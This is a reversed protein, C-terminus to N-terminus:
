QVRVFGNATIKLIAAESNAGNGQDFSITGSLGRYGKVKLLADIIKEKSDSGGAAKIANIILNAADYGLACIRDPDSNYRQRYKIKFDQWEASNLDTEVNASIVAGQVYSGGDQIVKKSQWGNSGLIQTKIRNFNVQPALMVIDDAEAPIFLGSVALTTDTYRISDAKSIRGKFETGKEIAQKELYRKLLKTRLEAFQATYDNAGEEFYIESVLEANQKKLEEKFSNALIMGYETKPALIAFEKMNLNQIAYSAVKRGLTGISVNMQFINSGLDAIGDETATPTLMVANKEMVAAASVIANQSLVPGIIVPVKHVSLFEKTQRANEIMSGKTDLLISKIAQNGVSNNMDIALQIGQVVNKGIDAQEGSVPALIGVQVTSKEEKKANTVTEKVSVDYKSRPYSSRFADAQIQAKGYQGMSTLKVIEYYRVIEGIQSNIDSELVKTFEDTSMQNCMSETGAIILSDLSGSVGGNQANSFAVIADVFYSQKANCVGELYWMRPMFASNSYKQRYMTFLRRASAYDNKRVYAENILPVLKEAEPDKGKLRLFDKIVFITSDYRGAKYHAVAKDYTISARSNAAFCLFVIAGCLAIRCSKIM